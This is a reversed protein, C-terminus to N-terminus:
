ANKIKGLLEDLEDQRDFLSFYERLLKLDLKDAHRKLLEEIDARDRAGRGPDNVSAQVKLGIIDEPTIVKVKFQGNLIDC